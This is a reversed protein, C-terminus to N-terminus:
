ATALIGLCVVWGTTVANKFTANAHVFDFEGQSLSGLNNQLRFDDRGISEKILGIFFDPGADNVVTFTLFSQIVKEFDVAFATFVDVNVTVQGADPM